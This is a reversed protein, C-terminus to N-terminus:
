VGGAPSGPRVPHRAAGVLGGDIRLECGSIFAAGDSVLFAAAAAIDEPRGPLPQEPRKLPTMEIMTPIVSQEELEMRGMPTDILGPAIAVTRAGQRGWPAALREVLRVVGRKALVYATAGDLPRGLAQEVQDFFGDALPDDLLAGVAPDIDSYGAISGILVAASGPGVLPFMADTMRVSGVLDVDLVRRGEAMMPSLGATHVLARFRGMAQVKEAAAALDDPETVDCIRTEVSAGEAVLTKRAQELEEDTVDLLLLHGRPALAQASALGMAGTGGTIVFVDNSSM